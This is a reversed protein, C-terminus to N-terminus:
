DAPTKEDTPGRSDRLHLWFIDWDATPPERFGELWTSGVIRPHESRPIDGTIKQIFLEWSATVQSYRPHFRVDDLTIPSRSDMSINARSPKQQHNVMLSTHPGVLVAPLNVCLGAAALVWVLRSSLPQALLVVLHLALVSPIMFRVGWSDDGSWDWWAGYFLLQSTFLLGAWLALRRTAPRAHVQRLAGWSLLLLPSFLFISKGASFLIGYVGLWVPNVFGADDYGSNYLTGSRAWNSWLILAVGPVMALGIRLKNSRDGAALAGTLLAWLLAESRISAALGGFMGAVLPRHPAFLWMGLLSTAVLAEGYELKTYAFWVSAVGVLIARAAAAGASLGYQMWIRQVLVCALAGNLVYLLMNVPGECNIGTAETIERSV